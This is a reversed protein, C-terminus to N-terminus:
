QIRGSNRLTGVEARSCTHDTLKSREQSTGVRQRQSDTHDDTGRGPFQDSRDRIVHQHGDDTNEHGAPVPTVCFEREAASIGNQVTM